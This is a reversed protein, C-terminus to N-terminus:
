VRFVDSVQLADVLVEGVEVRASREGLELKRAWRAWAVDFKDVPGLEKQVALEM